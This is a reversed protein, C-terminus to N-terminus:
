YNTSDIFILVDNEPYEIDILYFTDVEPIRDDESMEEKLAAYEEVTLVDTIICGTATDGDRWSQIIAGLLEYSDTDKPLYQIDAYLTDCTCEPMLDPYEPIHRQYKDSFGFGDLALELASGEELGNNATADANYWEGDVFFCNWTHGTDGDDKATYLKEFCPIGALNYLLSLSNAFGDCVTEGLILADYLQETKMEEEYEKYVTNICLYKYLYKAKEMDTLDAPMNEVISCAKDYAEDYKERNREEFTWVKILYGEPSVTAKKGSSNEYTYTASMYADPKGNVTYSITQEAFPSDLTFVHLIKIFDIDDGFINKDFFIYNYSNDWAYEYARYVLRETDTDLKSYLIRSNCESYDSAYNEIVSTKVARLAEDDYKDASSFGICGDYTALADAKLKETKKEEIYNEIIDSGFYSGWFVAALILIFCLINSLAKKM